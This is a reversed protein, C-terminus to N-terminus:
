KIQLGYNLVNLPLPPDPLPPKRPVTGCWEGEFALGKAAVAIKPPEPQPNFGVLTAKNLIQTSKPPFPFPKPKTGCWDDLIQAAGATANSIQMTTM